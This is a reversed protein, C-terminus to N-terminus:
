NAFRYLLSLSGFCASSVYLNQVSKAPLLQKLQQLHGRWGKNIHVDLPIVTFDATFCHNEPRKLRYALPPHKARPM